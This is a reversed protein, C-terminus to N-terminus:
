NLYSQTDRMETSIIRTVGGHLQIFETRLEEFETFFYEMKNCFESLEQKALQSKLTKM